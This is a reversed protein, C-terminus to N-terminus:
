DDDTTTQTSSIAASGHEEGDESERRVARLGAIGAQMAGPWSASPSTNCLWARVRDDCSLPYYQALEAAPCWCQTAAKGLAQAFHWALLRRYPFAGREFAGPPLQLEQGHLDKFHVQVVADGDRVVGHIPQENLSQKDLVVFEFARRAENYFFAAQKKDFASEIQKLLLLGNRPGHVDEKALGFRELGLGLSSYPWIHAAVVGKDGTAQSGSVMCRPAKANDSGHYYTSVSIRFNKRSRSSSSPLDEWPDLASTELYQL